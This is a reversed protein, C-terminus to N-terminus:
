EGADIYVIEQDYVWHLRERALQVVAEDTGLDAIRAELELNQQELEAVEGTLLQNKARDKGLQNQLATIGLVAILVLALLIYRTMRSPKRGQM